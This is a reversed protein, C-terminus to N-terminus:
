DEEQRDWGWEVVDNDKWERVVDDILEERETNSLGELESDSIDFVRKRQCGVLGIDVYGIVKM